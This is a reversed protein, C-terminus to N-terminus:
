LHMGVFGGSEQISRELMARRKRTQESDGAGIYRDFEVVVAHRVTEIFWNVVHQELWPCTESDLTVTLDAHKTREDKEDTFVVGEFKFSIMGHAPDNTVFFKCAANHLFDIAAKIRDYKAVLGPSADIPPDLRVLSRLPICDFSIDVYREM